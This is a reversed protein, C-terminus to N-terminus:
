QVKESHELIYRVILEAHHRSNEIFWKHTELGGCIVGALFLNKINTEMTDSHYFPILKGDESFQVGAQQLLTNDPLYGTMAMVVDNEIEQIGDPTQIVITKEKIEILKSNFFAHINGEKIRNEIDPKVWYKVREGIENQRVILTVEAGKRYTELAVDIASNQAGIVAIKQFAYGHPERYYHHVKPLSEGPINMLNPIDYFGTSVVVYQALYTQKKTKLEFLGDKNKSISEVQNYLQINLNESEVVKRYYELAEKRGPKPTTCTFPIGGIELREATSFFTMFLPYNFLSNTLAGKELILYDIGARKAMLGCTLGIPGGGIIILERITAM